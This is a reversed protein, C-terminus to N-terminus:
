IATWCVLQRWIHNRWIYVSRFPLDISKRVRTCPCSEIMHAATQDSARFQTRRDKRQRNAAHIQVIGVGPFYSLNLAPEVPKFKRFPLRSATSLGLTLRPIQAGLENRSVNLRKVPAVGFSAVLSVPPTGHLGREQAVFNKGKAQLM